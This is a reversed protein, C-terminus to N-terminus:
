WCNSEDEESSFLSCSFCKFFIISINVSSVMQMVSKSNSLEWISRLRHLYKSGWNRMCYSLNFSSWSYLETSLNIFLISSLFKIGFSFIQLLAIKSLIFVKKFQKWSSLFLTILKMFNNFSDICDIFQGM